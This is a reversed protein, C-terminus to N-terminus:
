KNEKYKNAFEAIRAQSEKRLVRTQEEVADLEGHIFEGFEMAEDCNDFVAIISNKAKRRPQSEGWRDAKSQIVMMSKAISIVQAPNRVPRGFLAGEVLVWDGVALENASKKM